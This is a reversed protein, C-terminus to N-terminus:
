GVLIFGEQPCLSHKKNVVTHVSGPMPGSVHLTSSLYPNTSKVFLFPHTFPHIFSHIFVWSLTNTDNPFLISLM